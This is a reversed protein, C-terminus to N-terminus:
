VSTEDMAIINGPLYNYKAVFHRANIIYSVLKDILKSPDKQAVSTKPRLSLGNRRMFKQLWETCAVFTNGGDCDNEKIKKNYIYLAKKMILKRSVQLGEELRDM